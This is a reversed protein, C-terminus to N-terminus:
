ERDPASIRGPKNDKKPSREKRPRNEQGKQNGAKLYERLENILSEFKELQDKNCVAKIADAQELRLIEMNYEYEAVHRALSKVLENDTRASFMKSNMSDRASKIKAEIDQERKAFDDRITRIEAVQGPTLELERELIASVDRLEPRNVPRPPRNVHDKWLMTGILLCNILALVIVTRVLLKNQTFIDM